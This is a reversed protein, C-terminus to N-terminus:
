PKCDDAMDVEGRRNSNDDAPPLTLDASTATLRVQAGDIRTMAEALADQLDTQRAHRTLKADFDVTDVSDACAFLLAIQERVTRLLNGIEPFTEQGHGSIFVHHRLLHDRAEEGASSEKEHVISHRREFYEPPAYTGRLDVFLELCENVQGLELRPGVPGKKTQAQPHNVCNKVQIAVYTLKTRDFKEDDKPLGGNADDSMYVPILLDWGPQNAIGQAAAHRLWLEVLVDTNLISALPLQKDLRLIHTFNLGARCAWKWLGRTPPIVLQEHELTSTQASTSSKRRVRLDKAAQASSVDGGIIRDFGILNNLWQAVPVLGCVAAYVIDPSAGALASANLEKEYLLSATVDMAMSCMVAVGQEGKHGADFGSSNNAHVLAQITYGWRLRTVDVKARFYWAVAASLPPESPSNTVIAESCTYIRGVFRLHQAIQQQISEYWFKPDMGRGIHLHIRRSALALLNQKTDDGAEDSFKQADDWSWSRTRHKTWILKGIIEQPIITGDRSRYIDDFWLPRGMNPLFHNLQQLTYPCGQFKFIDDRHQKELNVDLPMMSFPQALQHTQGLNTRRSAKRAIGGALPALDSNTDVLLIWTRKPAAHFWVRHIVPLLTAMTGCEDLALFYFPQLDPSPRAATELAELHPKFFKQVVITLLQKDNGLQGGAFHDEIDSKLDEASKCIHELMEIRLNDSHLLHPPEADVSSPQGGQEGPEEGSAEDPNRQRKQAVSLTHGLKSHKAIPNNDCMSSRKFLKHQAFDSSPKHIYEALLFVVTEWCLKPESDCQRPSSFCLPAAKKLFELYFALTKCYAALWAVMGIHAKNFGTTTNRTEPKECGAFVGQLHEFYGHVRTDQPPFSEHHQQARSSDRLCVLMGPSITSLQVCMRTKGFGSSQIIPLVKSYYQKSVWREANKQPFEMDEDNIDFTTAASPQMAPTPPSSSQQQELHVNGPTGGGQDFIQNHVVIHAALLLLSSGQFRDSFNALANSTTIDYSQRRPEEQQHACQLLLWLCQVLRQEKPLQQVSSPSKSLQQDLRQLIVDSSLLPRIAPGTSGSRSFVKRVLSPELSALNSRLEKILVENYFTGTVFFHLSSQRDAGQESTDCATELMLRLTQRALSKEGDNICSLIQQL